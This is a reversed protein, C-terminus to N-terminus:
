ERKVEGKIKEEAERELEGIDLSEFFKVEDGERERQKDLKRITEIRVEIEFEVRKAANGRAIINEIVLGKIHRARVENIM